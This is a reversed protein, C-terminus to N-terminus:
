LTMNKIQEDVFRQLERKLILHEEKELEPDTELIEKVGEAADQLETADQYIDGIDFAM